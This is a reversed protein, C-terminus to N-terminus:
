PGDVVRFGSERGRFWADLGDMLRFVPWALAMSLPAVALWGDFGEQGLGALRALLTRTTGIALTLIGAGLIVLTPTAEGRRTWLLVMGGYVYTAAGFMLGRVEGSAVDFVYAGFAALFLATSGHHRLAVFILWIPAFSWPPANLGGLASELGFGVIIFLLNVLVRQSPRAQTPPSM